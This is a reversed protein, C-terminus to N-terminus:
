IDQIWWEKSGDDWEVAPGDERHLKGNWYYRITGFESIKIERM